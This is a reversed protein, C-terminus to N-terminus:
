DRGAFRKAWSDAWEELHEELYKVGSANHLSPTKAISNTVVTPLNTEIMEMIKKREPPNMDKAGYAIREAIMSCLKATLDELQRKYDSPTSM